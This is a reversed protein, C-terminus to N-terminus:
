KQSTAAFLNEALSNKVSEIGPLVFYYGGGFPKIYRELPEGNLRKQTDIFGTKLNKQYSVFILGMDLLGSNTLGLSYSYSRRRLKASHRHPNRPEARRMHSDFLIRDGHPDQEFEPPDMEHKMGIPAGTTKHRGFDNEQDELPTRDWFELNFRILRIAQYTGGTCWTPEKSGSTIWILDDMLQNDSSPANGTGDKFGFLNIPTSKNEIDRAPLFGDIKWLPAAYPTIYKLIDRLAYLTSEKSNACIQLVIDGGCWQKELRDNPFSTMETLYYPKQSQFGFRDDFISNGLSVTITLSDPQLYSGLIGSEAPPMKDNLDAPLQQTQTLFAIRQTLLQFLRKVEDRHKTTINLAIFIAEKQEPTIVGAQHQGQYNIQQDFRATKNTESTKEPESTKALLSPSAIALGGLALTKLAQRRSTNIPQQLELRHQHSIKSLKNPLM